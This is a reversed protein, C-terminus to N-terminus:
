RALDRDDDPAVLVLALEPAMLLRPDHVVHDELVHQSAPVNPLTVASSLWRTRSTISDRGFVRGAVAVTPSTRPSNSLPFTM